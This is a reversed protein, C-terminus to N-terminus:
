DRDALVDSYHLQICAPCIGHSFTTGAREAVYGELRVWEGGEDHVSRCNPCVELHGELARAMTRALQEHAVALSTEANRFYIMVVGLALGLISVSSILYAAPVFFALATTSWPYALQLGGYIGFSWAAVRREFLPFDEKTGITWAVWLCGGAFLFYTPALNVPSSVIGLTAGLWAIALAIASWWWTPVKRGTMQAGGWVFLTVRAMSLVPNILFPQEPWIVPEVVALAYRVAWVAAAFTWIFLHREHSVRWAYLFTLVLLTETAVNPLLGWNMSALAQSSM